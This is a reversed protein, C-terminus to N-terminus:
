LPSSPPVPKQELTPGRATVHALRAVVVLRRAASFPPTCTTLVLREHGVHRLVGVGSPSVVRTGEVSYSFRGYPMTLDVRDGRRMRDIHRFPALYTTRHGAIGVTGRQGPLATNAYHGPGKKLSDEGTGVVFVLNEHLKPISIRGLPSGAETRRSLQAALITIREDKTIANKVLALTSSSLPTHELRTLEKGLAKQRQQAFVTTIPDRWVVTAVADALLVFGLFVALGGAFGGIRRSVEARPIGSKPARALLRRPLRRAGALGGAARSLVLSVVVRARKFASSTRGSRWRAV